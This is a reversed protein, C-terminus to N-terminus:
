DGAELRPLGSELKPWKMTVLTSLAARPCTEEFQMGKGQWQNMGSNAGCDVGDVMWLQYLLCIFPRLLLSSSEVGTGYLLLFKRFNACANIVNDRCPPIGREVGFYLLKDWHFTLERINFV